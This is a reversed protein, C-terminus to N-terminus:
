LMLDVNSQVSSLNGTMRSSSSIKAPFKEIIEIATQTTTTQVNEEISAITPEAIAGIPSDTSPDQEVSLASSGTTTISDSSDVKLKEDLAYFLPWKEQSNSSINNSFTDLADDGQLLLM